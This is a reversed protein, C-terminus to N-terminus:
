LEEEETPANPDAASVIGDARRLLAELWALRWHGFREQLRIYRQMADRHFEACINKDMGPPFADPRFHPRGWKHHSAILHLILDREKHVSIEDINCAAVASGLEHRYGDLKRWNVGASNSKAKPTFNEVDPDHGATKQWIENAKGLDHYKGALELADNLPKPLKLVKAIEKVKKSVDANHQTVEPIEGNGKSKSKDVEHLLLLWNEEADDEDEFEEIEKIKLPPRHRMLKEKESAPFSEIVAKIAANWSAWKLNFFDDDDAETDVGIIKGEDLAAFGFMEGRRKLVIRRYDKDVVDLNNNKGNLDFLGKESLAALETSFVVTAFNLDKYALEKLKVLQAEGSHSVVVM